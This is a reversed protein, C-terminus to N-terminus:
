RHGRGSRVKGIWRMATHEPRTAQRNWESCTSWGLLLAAQINGSAASIYTAIRFDKVDAVEVNTKLFQL